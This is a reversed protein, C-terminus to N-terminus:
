VEQDKPPKIAIRDWANNFLTRFGDAFEKQDLILIKVNENNFNMFALKNGYAYFSHENWLKAPFWRYEAFSNGIYNQDGEMVTTKFNIKNKYKNMRPVHHNYYWEHGVWKIWNKPKANYLCIDGGLDKAAEYVEDLLTKFGDTGQLTRIEGTQRKVGDGEIFELGNNEFYTQIKDMTRTSGPSQNNEVRMITKRTINLKDALDKQSLDLLVRAMIIQKGTIPM